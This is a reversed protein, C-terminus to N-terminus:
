GEKEAKLISSPREDDDMFAVNLTAIAGASTGGVYTQQPNIALEKSRNSM